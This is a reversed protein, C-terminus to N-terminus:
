QARDHNAVTGPVSRTNQHGAKVPVARVPVERLVTPPNAAAKIVVM